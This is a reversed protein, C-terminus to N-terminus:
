DVTDISALRRIIMQVMDRQMAVRLTRVEQNAGLVDIGDFEYDRVLSIETPELVQKNGALLEFEVTYFLEYERPRGDTGVSLVKQGASSSIIRLTATAQSRQAVTQTDGTNLAGTLGVELEKDRHDTQLFVKEMEPPFDYAGRLHFGCAAIILCSGAVIIRMLVAPYCYSDNIM